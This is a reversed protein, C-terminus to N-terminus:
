SEEKEMVMLVHQLSLLLKQHSLFNIYLPFFTIPYHFIYGDRSKVWM